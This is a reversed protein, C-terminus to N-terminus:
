WILDYWIGTNEMRQSINELVRAGGLFECELYNEFTGGYFITDTAQWFSIIPMGDMGDFFCRHGYFPILKPSDKLYQIVAEDFSAADAEFGLKEGLMFLMEKRNNELDFRFSREIRNQFQLFRALNRENCIRYNFFSGSTPVCLSLFERIEKPFRFGFFMEAADLEQETMGSEFQIGAQKLKDRIDAWNM